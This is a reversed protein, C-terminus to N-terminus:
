KNLNIVQETEGQVEFRVDEWTPPGFNGTANNSFAWPETPIGVFNADLEGNDNVDHMIRLAYAGPALTARYLMEGTQAAQMFAATPKTDEKFQQETLIQLMVTGEAKHVNTINISLTDARAFETAVLGWLLATFALLIQRSNKLTM